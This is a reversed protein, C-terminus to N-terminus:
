HKHNQDDLDSKEAADPKMGLAFMAIVVLSVIFAIGFGIVSLLPERTTLLIVLGVFLGMAGSLGLFEAPKLRDSRSPQHPTNPQTM